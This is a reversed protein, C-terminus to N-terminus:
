LKRCVAEINNGDPDIIFAAYYDSHYHPRLGPAGNDTGGAKIAAEYFQDVQEQTQAVWAVHVKTTPPKDDTFWTDLKGAYLFGVIRVGDLTQDFGVTYGLPKLVESYFTKANDVNSARFTIHDIM